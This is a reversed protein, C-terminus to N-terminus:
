SASIKKLREIQAQYSKYNKSSMDSQSQMNEVFALFAERAKAKDKNKALYSSILGIMLPLLMEIIAM